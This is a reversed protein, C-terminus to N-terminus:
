TRQGNFIKKFSQNNKLSVSVSVSVFHPPPSPHPPVSFSPSVSDSAPELSQATLVSGLAPSSGMFWSFMIQTSTLQKFLQALWTGGKGMTLQIKKNLKKLEKCM